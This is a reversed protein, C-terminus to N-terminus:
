VDSDSMRQSCKTRKWLFMKRYVGSISEKFDLQLPSTKNESSESQIRNPSQTQRKYAIPGKNQHHCVSQQPTETEVFVDECQFGGARLTQKYFKIGRVILFEVM